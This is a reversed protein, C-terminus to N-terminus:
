ARRIEGMSEVILGRMEMHALLINADSTKMDLTRILDDREYPERLHSLVRVEDGTLSQQETIKSGEPEISIASLIDLASRVPLAGLKLFQHGGSGGDSFISHPVVLLDRSYDSALRATILTGSKETAEIILTAHSMGAMIRNRKPFSYPTAREDPEMESLLAGGADLIERALYLHTRPYLVDDSLGSGPVAITQLGVKLATSHAVGDIGLALGSVIAVPYGELGQILHECVEKGYRSMHRSGVVTLLKTVPTPLEGRLYLTKPADPIELLLPPFNKPSLKKIDVVTM